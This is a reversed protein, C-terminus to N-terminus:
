LGHKNENENPGSLNVDSLISNLPGNPELTKSLLPFKKNSTNPEIKLLPPSCIKKFNSQMAMIIRLNIEFRLILM